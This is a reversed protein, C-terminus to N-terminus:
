MCVFCRDDASFCFVDIMVFLQNQTCVLNLFLRLCLFIVSLVSSAFFVSVEAPMIRSWQYSIFNDSLVIAVSMKSAKASIIGVVSM